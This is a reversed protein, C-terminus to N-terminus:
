TDELMRVILLLFFIRKVAAARATLRRAKGAM